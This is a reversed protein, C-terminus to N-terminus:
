LIAEDVNGGLMALAGTELLCYIDVSFVIYNGCWRTELYKDMMIAAELGTCNM